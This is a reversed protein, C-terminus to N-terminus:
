KKLKGLLFRVQEYTTMNAIDEPLVRRKEERGSFTRNGPVITDEGFRDHLQEQLICVFDDSTIGEYDCLRNMDLTDCLENCENHMRFHYIGVGGDVNVSDTYQTGQQITGGCFQCIHRKRATTIKISLNQM